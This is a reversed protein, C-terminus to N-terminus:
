PSGKQDKDKVPKWQCRSGMPVLLEVTWGSPGPGALLKAGIGEARAAMGPLGSGGDIRGASAIPSAVTNNVALRARTTTVDFQVRATEGPAHKAVNALAEQAIRFIGLGAAGVVHRPDGVGDYTVSLGAASFQEVLAPVDAATPLPRLEGPTGRLSSVTSRIDAMAERGVKEADDLAAIADAQDGDLLAERAGAVQLLTVSLSHAVLDHIERAIREREQMTAREHESARALREATLARMQWLLMFGVAAGLVIELSYLGPSRIDTAHWIGFLLGIGVVTVVVGRVVGDRATVVAALIMLLMPATDGAPVPYHVPVLLLWVTAALILAIDAFWGLWVPTMFLVAHSALILVLVGVAPKPPLLAHRQALAIVVIGIECVASTLPIWWPYALGRVAQKREILLPLRRVRTLGSSLAATLLAPVHGAYSTLFREPM